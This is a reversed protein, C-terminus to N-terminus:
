LLERIRYTDGSEIADLLPIIWTNVYVETALQIQLTDDDDLGSGPLRLAADKYQVREKLLKLAAQVTKNQKAMEEGSV